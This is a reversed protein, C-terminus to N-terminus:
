DMVGSGRLAVMAQLPFFVHVMNRKIYYLVVDLINQMNKGAKRGATIYSSRYSCSSAIKFASNKLDVRKQFNIYM